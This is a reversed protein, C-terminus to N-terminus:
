LAAKRANGQEGQSKGKGLSNRKRQSTKCYCVAKAQGGIGEIVHPRQLACGSHQGESLYNQGADNCSSIPATAVIQKGQQSPAENWSPGATHTHLM